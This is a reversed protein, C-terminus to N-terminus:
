YRLLAGTVSGSLACAKRKVYVHGIYITSTSNLILFCPLLHIILILLYTSNIHQRLFCKSLAKKWKNM